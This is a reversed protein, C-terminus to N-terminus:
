SQAQRGARVSACESAAPNIARKNATQRHKPLGGDFHSLRKTVIQDVGASLNESLQSPSDHPWQENAPFLNRVRLSVLQTRTRAHTRAYWRADAHRGFYNHARM